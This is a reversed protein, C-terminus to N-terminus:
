RYLFFCSFDAFKSGKKFEAIKSINAFILAKLKLLETFNIGFTVAFLFGIVM